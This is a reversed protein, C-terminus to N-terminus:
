IRSVNESVRTGSIREGGPCTRVPRCPPSPVYNVLTCPGVAPLSQFSSTPIRSSQIVQHWHDQQLTYGLWEARKNSNESVAPVPSRCCGTHAHDHHIRSVNKLAWTNYELLFHSHHSSESLRLYSITFARHPASWLIPQDAPWGRAVPSTKDKEVLKDRRKKNGAGPVAARVQPNM